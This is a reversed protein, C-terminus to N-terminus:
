KKLFEERLNSYVVPTNLILKKEKDNIKRMLRAPNGAWLEEKKVDSGPTVLAGAAIFAMENIIAGDLITSGMGILTHDKIDCAHITANHGITVNNGIVTPYGGGGRASFGKSSVHVVTGDQINTNEGVVIHNVDGRLVCNYWISTKSGIVVDGIVKTGSAIFTQNGIKPLIGKFPIIKDLTDM